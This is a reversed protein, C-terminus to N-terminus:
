TDGGRQAFTRMSALEDDGPITVSERGSAGLQPVSWTSFCQCGKVQCLMVGGVPVREKDQYSGFTTVVMVHPDFAHGCRDCPEGDDSM